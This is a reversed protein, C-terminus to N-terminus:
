RLTTNRRVVRRHSRARLFDFLALELSQNTVLRSYNAGLRQAIDRIAACHAELNRQYDARAAAPDIMEARGTEADEFM